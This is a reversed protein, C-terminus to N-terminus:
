DLNKSRFILPTMGTVRAFLRSFYSYDDYGLEAAIEKVSKGSHYLLRKAELIVRHQIHYSVAHGTSNKVCENLYPTSINLSGAYEAPSKVVTFDKELLAKFAQTIVNFRSQKDTNKAQALYQSIFLGVLTNFSDKLISNHLKEQKRNYFQICLSAMESILSFTEADLTLANLPVLEALLRLNEPHLNESTIIWSTLTAEDFGILRHIQQPNIYVIASATVLHTQFDIEIRTTGKEQLIFLHGSDRHPQGTERGDALRSVSTKAIYIGERTGSPLTNVPIHTNKKQM